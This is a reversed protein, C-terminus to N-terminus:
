TELSGCGNIDCNIKIGKPTTYESDTAIDAILKAAKAPHLSYTRVQVATVNCSNHAGQHYACGVIASLGLAVASKVQPTSRFTDFDQCEGGCFSCNEVYRM